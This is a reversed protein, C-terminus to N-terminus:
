PSLYPSAGDTGSWSYRREEAPSSAARWLEPTSTEWGISLNRQWAAQRRQGPICFGEAGRAAGAWTGLPPAASVLTSTGSRALLDLWQRNFKGPVSATSASLIGADLTFFTGHQPASRPRTRGM